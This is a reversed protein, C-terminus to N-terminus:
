LAPRGYGPAPEPSSEGSFGGNNSDGTGHNLVGADGETRRDVGFRTPRANHDRWSPPTRSDHREACAALSLLLSFSALKIPTMLM